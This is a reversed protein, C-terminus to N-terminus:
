RQLNIPILAKKKEDNYISLEANEKKRIEERQEKNGVYNPYELLGKEVSELIAGIRVTKFASKHAKCISAAKGTLRSSSKVTNLQKRVSELEAETYNEILWGTYNWNPNASDGYTARESPGSYEPYDKRILFYETWSGDSTLRGYYTKQEVKYKSSCEKCEIVAPGDEFRNWDDGYVTQTIIGKGCPCVAKRTYMEEWSM